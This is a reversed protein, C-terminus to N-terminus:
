SPNTDLYNGIKRLIDALKHNRKEYLNIFTDSFYQKELGFLEVALAYIVIASDLLNQSLTAVECIISCM